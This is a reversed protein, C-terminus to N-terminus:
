VKIDYMLKTLIELKKHSKLFLIKCINKGKIAFYFIGYKHSKKIYNCIGKYSFTYGMKEWFIGVM